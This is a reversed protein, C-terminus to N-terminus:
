VQLYRTLVTGANKTISRLKWFVISIKKKENFVVMIYLGEPSTETLM